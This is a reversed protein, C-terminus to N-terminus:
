RATGARSAVARDRDIRFVLRSHVRDIVFVGARMYGDVVEEAGTPGIAFVAPLSQDPRWELYTRVGDDHIRAPRISRDGRIRWGGEPGGPSPIVPM